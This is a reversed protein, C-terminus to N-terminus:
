SHSVETADGSGCRLEGHLIACDKLRCSGDLHARWHLHDTFLTTDDIGAAVELHIGDDCTGSECLFAVSTELCGLSICGEAAEDYGATRHSSLRAVRGLHDLELRASEPIVCLGGSM